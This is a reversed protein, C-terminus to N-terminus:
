GKEVQSFDLEVPTPRGFILVAVNLKSKEYDVEEVVGNFDAFPGDIVRVVEGSEFITKPKPKDAGQEIQQMITAAERDSIPSPNDSTGGIFGSIKNTHKVLHWTEDTMIMQVMVYGPYLKRETQRKQGSKMEVVEESPVLIDGFMNELGMLHIRKELALKAKHESNVAAQVVYWRMQGTTNNQEESQNNMDDTNM